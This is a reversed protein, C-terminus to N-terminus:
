DSLFHLDQEAAIADECVAILEGFRVVWRDSQGLRDLIQRRLEPNKTHVNRAKGLAFLYAERLRKIEELWAFADVCPDQYFREWVAEFQPAKLGFDKLMQFMPLDEDYIATRKTPGIIDLAM